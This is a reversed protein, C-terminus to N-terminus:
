TKAAYNVYDVLTWDEHSIFKLGLRNYLNRAILQKMVQAGTGLIELLAGHFADLKEPIDERRLHHTREIREYIAARVIEGPALLAYDVAEVLARQVAGAMDASRPVTPTFGENM